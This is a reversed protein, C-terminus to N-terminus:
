SSRISEPLVGRAKNSILLISKHNGKDSEVVNFANYQILRYLFPLKFFTFFKTNQFFFLYIDM